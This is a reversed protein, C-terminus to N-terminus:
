RGGPPPQGHRRRVGHPQAGRSRRPRSRGAPHLRRADLAPGPQGPHGAHAPAPRVPRHGRQRQQHLHAPRRPQAGPGAPRQGPVAHAGARGAQPRGPRLSRRLAVRGGLRRHQPRGAAAPQGPARHLAAPYAPDLEDYPTGSMLRESEETLTVFLERLEDRDAATVVFSAMMSSAQHLATVGAQHPGRFALYQHEGEAGTSSASRAGGLDDSSCAGFLGTAGGVLAAGGTGQLFRRRSVAGPCGDTM